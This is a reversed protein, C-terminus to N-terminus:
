YPMLRRRERASYEIEDETGEPAAAETERGAGVGMASVVEELDVRMRMGREVMTEALMSLERAEFVSRLPGFAFLYLDTWLETLKGRDVCGGCTGKSLSCEGIARLLVDKARTLQGARVEFEVFLKWLVTSGRTRLPPRNLNVESELKVGRSVYRDNKVAASLGARTREVEAEWRGKEWGAVWVEAVRRAVDKEVGTGNARTEGLMARVRGWVTQGKEAELFVGLFVTNSPYEELALEARKRLVEPPSANRLVLTHNYLLILSALMLHEHGPTAPALSAVQSDIVSLASQLSSTLLELLAFLKVLAVRDKWSTVRHTQQVLTELRRKTRLVAIGGTGTTGASRIIVGLAVDDKRSLWEMQAWDWWLTYAGLKESDTSSGLMTQYIRRADDIRGRLTELRAHAAWHPFSDTASALLSKSLKLASRHEHTKHPILSSDSM